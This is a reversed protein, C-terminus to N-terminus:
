EFPQTRSVVSKNINLGGSASFKRYLANKPPPEYVEKIKVEEENKKAEFLKKIENERKLRNELHQESKDKPLSDFFRGGKFNKSSFLNVLTSWRQIYKKSSIELNVPTPHSPDYDKYFNVENINTILEKQKIPPFYNLKRKDSVYENDRHETLLLEEPKKWFKYSELLEVQSNYKPNECYGEKFKWFEKKSEDNSFKPLEIGHVGIPQNSFTKENYEFLEKKKKDKIKNYTMGEERNYMKSFIEDEREKLRETDNKHKRSNLINSKEINENHRDFLIDELTKHKPNYIYELSPDKDTIKIDKEYELLGVNRRAERHYKNKLDKMSTYQPKIKIDIPLTEIMLKQPHNKEWNLIKENIETKNRENRYEKLENLTKIGNRQPISSLPHEPYIKTLSIIKEREKKRRRYDEENIRIEPIRERKRREILESRTLPNNNINNEEWPIKIKDRESLINYRNNENSTKLYGYIDYKPPIHTLPDFSSTPLENFSSEDFSM